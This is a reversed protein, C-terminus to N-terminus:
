DVCGDKIDKMLWSVWGKDVWGHVWNSGLYGDNILGVMYGIQVLIDMM